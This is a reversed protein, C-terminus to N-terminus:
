IAGGDNTADDQSFTSDLVSLTGTNYIGGGASTATNGSVTSDTLILTGNNEIGGGDSGNGDEITLAGITATVSGAVGFVPSADGGSIALGNTEPGDITLNATIDITGALTILDCAPSPAFDITDGSVAAGVEARLSGPAPASVSDSCNTVTLTTAGAVQTGLALSGFLALGIVVALAIRGFRARRCSHWGDFM